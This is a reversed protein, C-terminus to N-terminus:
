VVFVDKLPTNVQVYCMNQTPLCWVCDALLHALIDEGCRQLLLTFAPSECIHAVVKNPFYNQIDQFTTTGFSGAWRTLRYGLSLIHREGWRREVQEEKRSAGRRERRISDGSLLERVSRKRQFRYRRKAVLAANDDRGAVESGGLRTLLGRNKYGDSREVMKRTPITSSRSLIWWWCRFKPHSIFSSACIRSYMPCM